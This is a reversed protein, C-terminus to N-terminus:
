AGGIDQDLPPRLAPGTRLAGRVSKKYLHFAAAHQSQARMVAGNAVLLVHWRMHVMAGGDADVIYLKNSSTLGGCVFVNTLFVALSPGDAGVNGVKLPARVRKFRM